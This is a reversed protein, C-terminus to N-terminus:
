ERMLLLAALYFMEGTQTTEPLLFYVSGATIVIWKM